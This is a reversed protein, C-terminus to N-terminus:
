ISSAKVKNDTLNKVLFVCNGGCGKGLLELKMYNEM